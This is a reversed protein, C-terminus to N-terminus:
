DSNLNLLLVMDQQRGVGNIKIQKDSFEVTSYANEPTDLMAKFTVFHIGNKIAYNGDHNHGNFWAKVNKYQSIVDLVEEANWLNHPNEPFIPFHSLLVVHKNNNKASSLQQKLWKLQEDGIAGNWNEHGKYKTQYLALNHKHKETNKPWGYTSVDNGDLAIFQWDGLTFSYYRAPMNLTSTVNNKYEDAISFEHNGLVHYFPAKLHQTINLLTDFSKFDQDIFDGLHIVSKLPHKNLDTVAQELKKPCSTYLRQGKDPQNAYQCDAIIGLTFSHDTSMNNAQAFSPSILLVVFVWAQNLLTPTLKTVLKM